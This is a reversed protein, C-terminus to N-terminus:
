KDVKNEKGMSMTYLVLIQVIKIPYMKQNHTQIAHLRSKESQDRRVCM